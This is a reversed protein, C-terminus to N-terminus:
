HCSGPGSTLRSDFPARTGDEGAVCSRDGTLRQRAIAPISDIGLRRQCGAGPAVGRRLFVFVLSRGIRLVSTCPEGEAGTRGVAETKSFRTSGTDSVIAESWNRRVTGSFKQWSFSARRRGSRECLGIPRACFEGRTEEFGACTDKPIPGARDHWEFDKSRMLGRDSNLLGTNESRHTHEIAGECGVHWVRIPGCSDAFVRSVFVLDCKSHVMGSAIRGPSRCFASM